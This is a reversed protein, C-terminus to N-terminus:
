RSAIFGPGLKTKTLLLSSGRVVALFLAVAKRPHDVPLPNVIRMMELEM